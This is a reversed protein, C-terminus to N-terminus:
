VEDMVKLSVECGGTVAFKPYALTINRHSDFNFVCLYCWSRIEDFRGVLGAQTRSCTM